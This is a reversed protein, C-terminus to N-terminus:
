LDNSVIKNKDLMNQIIGQTYAGLFKKQEPELRDIYIPEGYELTVKVKRIKPFQNEWIAASNSIAMPIIPVNARQAMKLSGEKFELLKGEEPGRTGEPFICVSIGSKLYETGQKITKIGEKMNDRDLFLCYLFEMWMNLLPVKKISKKAVYGTLRPCRSYTLLIDYFSRHNGAYLVARDKPVHEEGLVTLEVGSVWLLIQFASQVMYLFLYDRKERNFLGILLGVPVIPLTFILYAVVGLVTCIFRIM